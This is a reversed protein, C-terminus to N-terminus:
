RSLHYVLAGDAQYDFRFGAAELYRLVGPSPSWVIAWGIHMQRVDQRVAALRAADAPGGTLLEGTVARSDRECEILYHYFPHRKVAALTSEPLRSVYGVATPHGEATAQVLSEPNLWGQGRLPVGSLVGFPYDVVVSGSRDAAIPATLAPMSAPMTVPPFLEAATIGTEPIALLVVLLLVPAARRCLWSVAAAALLALPVLGLELLRCPERFSSLLPIRVLWTYPMILSVRIGHWMAPFPVHDVKGVYIGTGLSVVTCALWFVALLRAAPRRWCAVLGVLALVLLVVGYAGAPAAVPGSRYYYGAMGKLGFLAAQPSPSFIQLPGAAWRLYGDALARQSMAAQGSLQEHAMAILQPSAVVGFTMATVAVSRLKVRGTSGGRSPRRGLWPLLAACALLTALIASEQDTLLAAGLVVGLLLAQRLGPKRGLRVAAELAVPLFIAGLGLNLEFWDNWLLMTSLGFFAGAAIAAAQAHAGRGAGWGAVRAARYMAYCGLAPAAVSLLNYSFTAGFGATIPTMLAGPLPMLTHFGLPAGVPAAQYSTLWPNSLHEVCHAMWWLDWVFLGTDQIRPVVHDTLYTARPWSAAIGAAVYGALVTLHVVVPRVFSGVRRPQPLTGASAGASASAGTGTGTGTHSYSTELRDPFRNSLLV